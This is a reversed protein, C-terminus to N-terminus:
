RFERDGEHAHSLFARPEAILLFFWALPSRLARSRDAARALLTSVRRYRSPNRAVQTYGGAHLFARFDQGPTMSETSLRTRERRNEKLCSEGRGHPAIRNTKWHGRIEEAPLVNPFTIANSKATMRARGYYM